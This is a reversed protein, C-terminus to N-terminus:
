CAVHRLLCHPATRRSALPALRRAACPCQQPVPLETLLSTISHDLLASLQHHWFAFPAGTNVAVSHALGSGAVGSEKRTHNACSDWLISHRFLLCGRCLDLLDIGPGLTAGAWTRWRYGCGDM